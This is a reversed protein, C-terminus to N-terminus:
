SRARRLHHDYRRPPASIRSLGHQQGRYSGVVEGRNNVSRPMTGFDGAGPVDFTIAPQNPFQLFGHNGVADATYGTIAGTNNIFVPFTMAAGPVDFTRIAGHPARVFGHQAGNQDGYYGTIFGHNNISYASTSTSGPVDFTIITGTQASALVAGLVSLVAAATPQGARRRVNM